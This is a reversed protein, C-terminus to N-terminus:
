RMRLIARLSRALPWRVRSPAGSLRQRRFGPLRDGRFVCPVPRECSGLPHLALSDGAAAVLLALLRGLLRGKIVRMASNERWGIGAVRLMRAESFLSSKPLQPFCEMRAVRAAGFIIPTRFRANTGCAIVPQGTMAHWDEYSSSHACCEAISCVKIVHHPMTKQLRRRGIRHCYIRASAFDPGIGIIASLLLLLPPVLVYVMVGPRHDKARRGPCHTRENRPRSRYVTM